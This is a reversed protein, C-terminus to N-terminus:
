FVLILLVLSAAMLICIAILARFSTGSVRSLHDLFDMLLTIDAGTTDAILRVPKAMHITMISLYIVLLAILAWLAYDVTSLVMNQTASVEVLSIPDIFSVILYAVFLLGGILVAVGLRRLHKSLVSFVLNESENFEYKCTNENYAM